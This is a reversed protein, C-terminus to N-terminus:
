CCFYPMWNYLMFCSLAIYACVCAFSCLCIMFAYVRDLYYRSLTWEACWSDCTAHGTRIEGSNVQPLVLERYNSNRFHHCPCPGCAAWYSQPSGTWRSTEAVWRADETAESFHAQVWCFLFSDGLEAHIHIQFRRLLIHTSSLSM